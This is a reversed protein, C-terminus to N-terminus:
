CPASIQPHDPRKPASVRNTARRHHVKPVLLLLSPKQRVHQLAPRPKAEPDRLRVTPAQEELNQFALRSLKLSVFLGAPDSTAPSTVVASRRPSLYTTLPAFFHIVLPMKASKQVAATLVPPFPVCPTDASTIGMFAGPTVQLFISFLPTCALPSNTAHRPRTPYLAGLPHTAASVVASM